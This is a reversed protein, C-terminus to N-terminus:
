KIQMRNYAVHLKFYCKQLIFYFTSLSCTSKEKVAPLAPPLPTIRYFELCKRDSNVTRYNQQSTVFSKSNRVCKEALYYIRQEILYSSIPLDHLMYSYIFVFGSNFIGKLLDHRSLKNM